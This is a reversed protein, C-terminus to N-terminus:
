WLKLIILFIGFATQNPLRKATILNPILNFVAMFFIKNVNISTVIAALNFACVGGCAFGFVGAFTSVRLCPAIGTTFGLALEVIGTIFGCFLEGM